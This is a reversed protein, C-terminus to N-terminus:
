RPRRGLEGVVVREDAQGLDALLTPGGPLEGASPRQPAHRLRLDLARLLGPDQADEPQLLDHAAEEAAWRGQPQAPREEPDLWGAVGGPGPLRPPLRSRPPDRRQQVL